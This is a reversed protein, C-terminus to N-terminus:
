TIFTYNTSIFKDALLSLGTPESQSLGTPESEPIALTTTPEQGVGTSLSM